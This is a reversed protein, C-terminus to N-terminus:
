SCEKKVKPKFRLWSGTIDNTYWEDNRQLRRSDNNEKKTSVAVTKAAFGDLEAKRCSPFLSISTICNTVTGSIFREGGWHPFQLFSEHREKTNPFCLFLLLLLLVVSTSRNLFCSYRNSRLERRMISVEVYLRENELQLSRLHHQLCDQPILIRFSHKSSSSSHSCHSDNDGSSTAYNTSRPPMLMSSLFNGDRGQNKKKAGKVLVIEKPPKTVIPKQEKEQVPSVTTAHSRKKSSGPPMLISPLFCEDRDKISGERRMLVVEKPPKMIALNQQQQEQVATSAIAQSCHSDSCSSAGVSNSYKPFSQPANTNKCSDNRSRIPSDMSLSRRANELKRFFSNQLMKQRGRLIELKSLGSNDSSYSSISTTRMSHTSTTRLLSPGSNLTSCDDNQHQEQQITVTYGYHCLQNQLSEEEETVDISEPSGPLKAANTNKKKEDFSAKPSSSCKNRSLEEDLHHPHAVKLFM